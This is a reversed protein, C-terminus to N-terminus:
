PHCTRSTMVQFLFFKSIKLKNILLALRHFLERNRKHSQDDDNSLKMSPINVAVDRVMNRAANLADSTVPTSAATPVRIENSVDVSNEHVDTLISSNDSSM